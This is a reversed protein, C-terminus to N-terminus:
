RRWNYYRFIIGNHQTLNVEAKIARILNRIAEKLKKM